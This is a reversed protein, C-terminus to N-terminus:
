RVGGGAAVIDNVGNSYNWSAGAPITERFGIVKGRGRLPVRGSAKRAAPTKFTLTTSRTDSVGLAITSSSADSDPSCWSVLQSDPLAINNTQLTAQLPSGAFTAFKYDADLAGFLPVGGMYFRSDLAETMSDLYLTTLSDLTVGPTAIRTLASTAVSSTIFENLQWDYGILLNGTLRWWVIKQFPDLAGQIAEYGSAAVQTALWRNVKEAGIPENGGGLTYKYFGDTAIYFAMGDFSVISRDSVAGRGDALKQITYLAAGGGFQVLRIANEQFIVAAGNKLDRGGILTGGDEFTKGDAGNTTWNTHDGIASSQMRRNNSSTGLAFVVNNCSFLARAAPAGSVASNTGGLEIDYAKFGDTTDSNLLYKGFLLMSVDDGSTVTRGTEVDSWQYASDMTEITSATAAFVAYAGSAKQVSIIGRPAGSLAEAGTATILAPMPGYGIGNGAAQPLVNNAQKAIGSNPGGVDPRWPGWPVNV